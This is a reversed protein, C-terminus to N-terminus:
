ACFTNLEWIKNIPSINVFYPNANRVGCSQCYKGHAYPSPNVNSYTFMLFFYDAPRQCSWTQMAWCTSPCWPSAATPLVVFLHWFQAECVTNESELQSLFPSGGLELLNQIMCLSLQTCLCPWGTCLPASPAAWAMACQMCWKMKSKVAEAAGPLSGRTSEVVLVM